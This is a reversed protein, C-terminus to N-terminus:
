KFAIRRKLESILASTYLNHDIQIGKSIEEYTGYKMELGIIKELTANRVVDIVHEYLRIQNEAQM